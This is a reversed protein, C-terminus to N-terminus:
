LRVPILSGGKDLSTMVESSGEVSRLDTVWKHTKWDEGSLSGWPYQEVLALPALFCCRFQGRPKTLQEGVNLARKCQELCPLASCHCHKRLWEAVFAEKVGFSSQHFTRFNSSSSPSFPWLVLNHQQWSGLLVWGFPDLDEGGVAFPGLPDCRFCVLSGLPGFSIGPPVCVYEWAHLHPLGQRLGSCLPYKLM